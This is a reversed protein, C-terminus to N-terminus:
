EGVVNGDDFDEEDDDSAEVQKKSEEPMSDQRVISILSFTLVYNSISVALLRANQTSVRRTM